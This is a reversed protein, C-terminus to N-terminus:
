NLVMLLTPKKIDVQNLAGALQLQTPIFTWSEVFEVEEPSFRGAVYERAARQADAFNYNKQGLAAFGNVAEQWGAILNNWIDMYRQPEPIHECERVLFDKQAMSIEIGADCIKCIVYSGRGWAAVPILYLSASKVRQYVIHHASNGCNRCTTVGVYGLPEMGEKTSGFILM